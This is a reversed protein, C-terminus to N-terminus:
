LTSLRGNFKENIIVKDNKSCNCSKCLPQVEDISYYTGIPVASIPIIHDM